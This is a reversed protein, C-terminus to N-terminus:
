LCQSGVCCRRFFRVQVLRPGMRGILAVAVFYGPLAVLAVVSDQFAEDKLTEASSFVAELVDDEYQRQFFDLTRVTWKSSLPFRM